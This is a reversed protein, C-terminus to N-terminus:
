AASRLTPRLRMARRSVTSEIESLEEAYQPKRAVPSPREDLALRRTSTRVSEQAPMRTM